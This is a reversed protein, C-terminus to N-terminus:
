AGLGKHTGCYWVGAEPENRVQRFGFSADAGCEACRFAGNPNHLALPKAAQAPRPRAAPATAFLDPIPRGALSM